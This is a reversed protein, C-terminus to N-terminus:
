RATKIWDKIRQLLNKDFVPALVQTEGIAKKLSFVKWTKNHYVEKEAVVDRLTVPNCRDEFIIYNATGDKLTDKDLLGRNLFTINTKTYTGMHGATEYFPPALFFKVPANRDRMSIIASVITKTDGMKSIRPVIIFFLVLFVLIILIGEFAKRRVMSRAGVLMYIPYLTMMVFPAIPALLYNMFGWPSLIVLYAGLLLPFLIYEQRIISVKRHMIFAIGAFMFILAFAFLGKIVLPASLVSTLMSLCNFNNKYGASYTGSWMMTRVVLYFGIFIFASGTFSILSLKKNKHFVFYDLLAYVCFVGALAIGTEKSLIGLVMFAFSVILCSVKNIEYACIYFYLSFTVFIYVFKELSSILMFNNWFPTFIIFTLPYVFFNFSANRHDPFVKNIIRGWVLFTAFCAFAMCLYLGTPFNRFPGYAIVIWFHYLPMFRGSHVIFDKIANYILGISPYKWFDAAIALNRSDDVVGWWPSYYLTAGVIVACLLIFVGGYIIKDDFDKKVSSDRKRSTISNIQM